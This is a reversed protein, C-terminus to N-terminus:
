VFCQGRWVAARRWSQCLNTLKLPDIDSRPRPNSSKIRQEKRPGSAPVAPRHKAGPTYPVKRLLHNPGDRNHLTHTPRLPTPPHTFSAAAVEATDAPSCPDGTTVSLHVPQGGGKLLIDVSIWAAPSLTHWRAESTPERPPVLLDGDQRCM